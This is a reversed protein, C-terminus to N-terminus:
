ASCKTYGKIIRDVIKFFVSEPLIYWHDPKELAGM